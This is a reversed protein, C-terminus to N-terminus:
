SSLHYAFLITSVLRSTEAERDLLIRIRNIIYLERAQKPIDSAPYNLGLLTLM